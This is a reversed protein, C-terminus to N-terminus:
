CDLPQPDRTRGSEATPINEIVGFAILMTGYRNSGQHVIGLGFIQIRRLFHKKLFGDFLLWLFVLVYFSFVIAARFPWFPSFVIIGHSNTSQTVRANHDPFM